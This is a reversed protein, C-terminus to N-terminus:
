ETGGTTDGSRVSVPRRSIVGATTFGLAAGYVTAITDSKIEGVAALYTASGIVVLVILIHGIIDIVASVGPSSITSGHM